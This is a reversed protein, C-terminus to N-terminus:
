SFIFHHWRSATQVIKDIEQWNDVYIAQSGIEEAMNWPYKLVIKVMMSASDTNRVTPAHDEILLHLDLNQSQRSKFEVRDGDSFLIKDQGWALGHKEFWDLTERGHTKESRATIFWIQHGQKRWHNLKEVAGEIPIANNYIFSKSFLEKIFAPGNPLARIEPWDDLWFSVPRQELISKVDVGLGRKVLRCVWIDLNNVNADLDVGIRLVGPIEQSEKLILNEPYAM